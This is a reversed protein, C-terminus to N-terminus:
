WSMCLLQMLQPRDFGGLLRCCSSCIWRVATAVSALM